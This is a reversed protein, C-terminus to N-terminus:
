LPERGETNKTQPPSYISEKYLVMSIGTSSTDFKKRKMMWSFWSHWWPFDLMIGGYQMGTAVVYGTDILAMHKNEITINGGDFYDLINGENDIKALWFTKWSKYRNKLSQHIGIRGTVLFTNDLWPTIAYADSYFTDVLTIQWLSDGESSF